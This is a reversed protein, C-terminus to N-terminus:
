LWLSIEDVAETLLLSGELWNSDLENSDEDLASCDCSDDVESFEEVAGEDEEDELEMEELAEEVEFGDEASGSPNRSTNWEVSNDTDKFNEGSDKAKM